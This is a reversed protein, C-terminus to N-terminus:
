LYPFLLDRTSFCWHTRSVQIETHGAWPSLSPSWPGLWVATRVEQCCTEPACSPTQPKCTHPVHLAAAFCFQMQPMLCLLPNTIRPSFSLNRTGTWVLGTRVTAPLVALRVSGWSGRQGGARAHDCETRVTDVEMKCILFSFTLSILYGAQLRPPSVTWLRTGRDGSGMTAGLWEARLGVSILQTNGGRLIVWREWIGMYGM